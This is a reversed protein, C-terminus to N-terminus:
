GAIFDNGTCINLLRHFQKKWTHEARTPEAHTQIEMYFRQSLM